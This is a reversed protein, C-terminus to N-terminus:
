EGTITPTAAPLTLCFRAGGEPGRGVTVTGGHAEAIHKVIALGLGAGGGPRSVEDRGRYFRTFLHPLDEPAIGPGNDSVCIVVQPRVPALPDTGESVKEGTLRITGGPPTFKLANSLLNTLAQVLRGEDAMVPPLDSALEVGFSVGDREAAFAMAQAAKRAANAPNIPELHFDVYGAELKSIEFLDGALRSLRNVEGAIIGLYRRREEEDTVVGDRLAEAFGQISTIPTRLEHSVSAVLERRARESVSLAEVNAQVKGAMENFSDVVEGLEDDSKWAIRQGYEGAAVKRTAGALYRLPRILYAAWLLALLASVGLATFATLALLRYTEGTARSLVVLRKVLVLALRPQAFVGLGPPQGGIPVEVAVMPRGEADELEGVWDRGNRVADKFGPHGVVEGALVRAQYTQRLVRGEPSIVLIEAGVLRSAQRISEARRPDVPQARPGQVAAALEKAQALLTEQTTRVLISRLLGVFLMGVLLLTFLTGGLYTLILRLRLSRPM